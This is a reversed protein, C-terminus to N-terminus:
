PTDKRDQRALDVNDHQSVTQGRGSKTLKALVAAFRTTSARFANRAKAWLQAPLTPYTLFNAPLWRRLFRGIATLLAAIPGPRRTSGNRRRAPSRLRAAMQTAALVTARPVSPWERPALKIKQGTRRLHEEHVPAWEPGRWRFEPNEYPGPPFATIDRMLGPIARHDDADALATIALRSVREDPDTIRHALADRVSTAWCRQSLAEVAKLKVEVDPDDSLATLTDLAPESGVTAAVEVVERRILASPHDRLRLCVQDIKAIPIRFVPNEAHKVLEKGLARLIKVGQSEEPPLEGLLLPPLINMRRKPNKDAEDLKEYDRMRAAVPPNRREEAAALRGLEDITAKFSALDRRAVAAILKLILRMAPAWIDETIITTAARM